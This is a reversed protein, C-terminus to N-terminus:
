NKIFHISDIRAHHVLKPILPNYFTKSLITSDANNTCYAQREWERFRCCEAMIKVKFHRAIGRLSVGLPVHYRFLFCLGPLARRKNLSSVSIVDRPARSVALPRRSADQVCAISHLSFSGGNGWKGLKVRSYDEAVVSILSLPPWFILNVPAISLPPFVTSSARKAAQIGILRDWM